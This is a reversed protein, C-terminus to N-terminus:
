RTYVLTQVADEASWFEGLERFLRTGAHFRKAVYKLGGDSGIASLHGLVRGDTAVVRWLRAAAPVLDVRHMPSVRPVDAASRPDHLDDSRRISLQATM